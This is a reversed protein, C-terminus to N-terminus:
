MSMGACSSSPSLFSPPKRFPYGFSPPMVGMGRTGSMPNMGGGLGMGGQTGFSSFTRSGPGLGGSMSSMGGSMPSLSFSTRGSAIPSIGRTQFSLSGGGGMRYPMFGGFKGAYPIVPGSMGMGPGTDTM